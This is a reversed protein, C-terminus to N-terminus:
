LIRYARSTNSGYWLVGEMMGEGCAPLTVKVTADDVAEIKMTLNDYTSAEGM